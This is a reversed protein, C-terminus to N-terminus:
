KKAGKLEEVDTILQQVTDLLLGCLSGLDIGNLDDGTEPEKSYFAVEPNEEVVLGYKKRGAVKYEKAKLAKVKEVAKDIPKKDTKNASMSYEIFSDAKMNIGAGGPYTYVDGNLGTMKISGTGGVGTLVMVGPCRLKVQTGGVCQVRASGNILQQEFTGTLKFAEIPTFYFKNGQVTWVYQVFGVARETFDTPEYVTDDGDQFSM